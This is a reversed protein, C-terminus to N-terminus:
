KGARRRMLASCALGSGLLVLGCPEPVASPLSPDDGQVSGGAILLGSSYIEDGVNAVAFVLAYTGATTTDFTFVANVWNTSGGLGNGPSSSPDQPYGNPGYQTADPDAGSTGATLPNLFFVDGQLGASSPTLVLGSPFGSFGFGPVASGSGGTRATFFNLPSAGTPAGSADVPLLYAAGWDSFTDTGDNTIFSFDFNIKEGAVATFVPSIMASGNTSGPIGPAGPIASAALSTPNLAPFGGGSDTVIYLDVPDGSPSLFPPASAKVGGGLSGGMLTWGSPTNGPGELVPIAWASAAASVFFVFVIYAVLSTRM